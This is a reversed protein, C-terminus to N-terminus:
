RTSSRTIGPARWISGDAFRVAVPRCVNPRPGLYAYGNFQGFTHTISVGPSFTGEDVVHEVAGRYNVLFAVRTAPQSSRNVYTIQLGDTYPSGNPPVFWPNWFPHARVPQYQLVTCSTVAIPAPAQAGVARPAVAALVGIISLWRM